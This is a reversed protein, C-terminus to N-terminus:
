RSFILPSGFAAMKLEELSLSQAAPNVNPPPAPNSIGIRSRYGRWDRSQTHFERNGGREINRNSVKQFLPQKVEFPNLATKGFINSMGQPPTTKIYLM